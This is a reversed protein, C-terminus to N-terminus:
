TINLYRKTREIREQGQPTPNGQEDCPVLIKHFKNLAVYRWGQEKKESEKAQAVKLAKVGQEHWWVANNKIQADNDTLM